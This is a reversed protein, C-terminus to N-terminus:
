MLLASPQGAPLTHNNRLMVESRKM